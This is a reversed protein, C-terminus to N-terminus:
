KDKKKAAPKAKEPLTKGSKAYVRSKSGDSNVQIKIRDVAGKDNLIAINSTPLSREVVIREGARGAMKRRHKTIMNVGGVVVRNLKAMVAIIQGKKGKDKGSTVLVQDGIKFKM